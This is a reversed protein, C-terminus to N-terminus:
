FFQFLFFYIHFEKKQLISNFPYFFDSKFGSSVAFILIIFLNLLFFLKVIIASKKTFIFLALAALVVYNSHNILYLFYRYKEFYKLNSADYAFGYINYYTMFMFGLLSILVLIILCIFNLSKYKLILYYKIRQFYFNKSFSKNKLYDAFWYGLWMFNLSNILLFYIKNLSNFHIIEKIGVPSIFINTLVFPLLFTFITCIFPAKVLYITPYKKKLFLIHLISLIIIILNFKVFLFLKNIGFIKDISLLIFILLFTLLFIIISNKFYKKSYISIM